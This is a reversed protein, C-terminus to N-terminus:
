TNGTIRGLYILVLIGVEFNGRKILYLCIGM